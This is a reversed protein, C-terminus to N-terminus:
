GGGGGTGIIIGPNPGMGGIGKGPIGMGPGGIPMIGGGLMGGGGCPGTTTESSSNGGSPALAGLTWPFLATSGAAGGAILGLMM